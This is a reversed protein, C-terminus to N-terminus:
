RRGHVEVLRWLKAAVQEIAQPPIGIEPGFLRGLAGHLLLEIQWLTLCGPLRPVVQMAEYEYEDIPPDFGAIQLLDADYTALSCADCM